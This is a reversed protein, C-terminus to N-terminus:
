FTKVVWMPVSLQIGQTDRPTWNGDGKEDILYYPVGHDPTIKQMYLKGNIRHEEIRENGRKIITVQPELDDVIVTGPPTPPMPPPPPAVGPQYAPNAPRDQASAPICSLGIAMALLIQSATLITRQM